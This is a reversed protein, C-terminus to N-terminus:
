LNETSHVLLSSISNGLFIYDQAYFHAGPDCVRELLTTNLPPALYVLKQMAVQLGYFLVKTTQTV